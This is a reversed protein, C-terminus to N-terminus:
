ARGWEFFNATVEGAAVAPIKVTSLALLPALHWYLPMVAIDGMQEQLLERHLRLRAEPEITVVLQDLLADVRPNNYGGRNRGVWRTEATPVERSHLRFSYYPPGASFFLYGGSFTAAYERDAQRAVPVVNLEVAAGVAKWGDAVANMEREVGPDHNARLEIEFRDGTQRHVLLGDPGRGWGAEALLAQARNPDFPFRPLDPDLVKRLAETPSYWSDAIPALGHSVLDVLGKRDIAQYFAQRVPRSTLGNRPRAYAPRFQIQINEFNDSVNFRVQHGSGQWRDRVEVATDIDIGPPLLADIAGSLIAAVLANPDGIFRVIVSDLSPRGLFYQDFSAFEMQAGPEWHALRYAGLGIFDTTFWSSNLFADKGTRYADGLLHRPIPELENARGADVYTGSWRVVFTTADAAQASQLLDARGSGPLQPDKRVDFTFLLDDSTFPTGDHWKVNPYIRWTTEMTGDANIRWTGREVSPAETALQPRYAGNSDPITLRNHAIFRPNHAGGTRSAGGTPSVLTQPERLIGLTLVKSPHGGSPERLSTSPRATPGCAGTILAALLALASVRLGGVRSQRTPPVEM